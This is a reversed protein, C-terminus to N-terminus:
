IERRHSHQNPQTHTHTHQPYSYSSACVQTIPENVEAGPKHLTFSSRDLSVPRLCSPPLKPQSRKLKHECYEVYIVLM